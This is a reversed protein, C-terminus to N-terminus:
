SIGAPSEIKGITMSEPASLMCDIMWSCPAAGQVHNTKLVGKVKTAKKMKKTAASASPFRVGKSRGSASDSSTMPKAGRVARGAHRLEEADRRRHEQAQEEPAHAVM